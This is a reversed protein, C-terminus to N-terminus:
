ENRIEMKDLILNEDIRFNKDINFIELDSLLEKILSIKLPHKQSEIFSSCEELDSNANLTIKYGNKIIAKRPVNMKIYLNSEAPTNILRQFISKSYQLGFSESFTEERYFPNYKNYNNTIFQYLIDYIDVLNIHTKSDFRQKFTKPFKILIPIHILEDFLFTGHGYYGHEKLAQGHDSTIIIVTNDFKNKLKLTNIVNLIIYEIKKLQNDYIKQLQILRNKSLPKIDFVDRLIKNNEHIHFISKFYPDHMEMSNIFIFFPTSFDIKNFISSIIMYGKNAPYGRFDSILSTKVFRIIKNGSNHNKTNELGSINGINVNYFENFKNEFGTLNSIMPNASIGFTRYGNSSALKTLFNGTYDLAKSFIQEMESNQEEHVGHESPYLGTFLSFHSPLTWPSPSYANEFNNFDSLQEILDPNNDLFKQFYDARLTDFVIIVINPKETM